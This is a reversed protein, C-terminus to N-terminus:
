TYTYRYTFTYLISDNVLGLIREGDTFVIVDIDKQIYNELIKKINGKDKSSLYLGRPVHRTINGWEICAEGVTPTYVIPMLESMHSTLLAYFLTEDADQITHLYIYKELPSTKKHFQKMAIDVKTELTLPNGAPVVGRLQYQDREKESFSSGKNVGPLRAFISTSRTNLSSFNKVDRFIEDISSTSSDVIKSSTAVVNGGSSLWRTLIYFGASYSIFYLASSTM